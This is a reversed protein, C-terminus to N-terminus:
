EVQYREIAYHIARSLTDSKFGGKILYDQAGLQLAQAAQEQDDMGTLVVIPVHPAGERARVLTDLGKSDPLGLDLLVVDLNEETVRPLAAELSSQWDVTLQPVAAERLMEEVLRAYTPSDEVLMVHM